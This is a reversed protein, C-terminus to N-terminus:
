KARLLLQRWLPPGRPSPSSSPYWTLHGHCPHFYSMRFPDKVMIGVRFTFVNSIFSTLPETKTSTYFRPSIWGEIKSLSTATWCSFRSHKRCSATDHPEGRWAFWLHRWKM